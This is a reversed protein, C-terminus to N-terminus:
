PYTPWEVTPSNLNITKYELKKKVWGVFHARKL